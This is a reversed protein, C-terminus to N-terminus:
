ENWYTYLESNNDSRGSAYAGQAELIKSDRRKNRISSRNGSIEGAQLRKLKLEEDIILKRLNDLFDWVNGHSKSFKKGAINHFSETINNTRSPCNSVSVKSSIPLWTRQVYDLFNNVALYKESIQCAELQIVFFAKEFCDSPILAMTMTMSLVTRPADM